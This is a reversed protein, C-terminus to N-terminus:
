PLRLLLQSPSRRAGKRAYVCQDSAEHPDVDVDVEEVKADVGEGQSEGQSEGKSEGQSEEQLEEQSEGQSECVFDGRADKDCDVQDLKALLNLLNDDGHDESEADGAGENDKERESHSDTESDGDSHQGSGLSPLEM